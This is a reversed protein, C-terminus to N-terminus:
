QFLNVWASIHIAFANHVTAGSPAALARVWRLMPERREVSTGQTVCPPSLLCYGLRFAKIEGREHISPIERQHGIEIYLCNLTRRQAAIRIKIVKNILQSEGPSAKGSGFDGRANSFPPEELAGACCDWVQSLSKCTQRQELYAKRNRLHWCVGGLEAEKIRYGSSVDARGEGVVERSQHLSIVCPCM